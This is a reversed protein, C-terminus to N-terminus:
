VILLNNISSNSLCSDLDRHTTCARSSSVASSCTSKATASKSSRASPPTSGRLPTARSGASTSAISRAVSANGHAAYAARVRAIDDDVDLDRERLLRLLAFAAVPYERLLANVTSTTTTDIQPGAVVEVRIPVASRLQPRTWEADRYSYNIRTRVRRRSREVDFSATLRLLRTPTSRWPCIPNAPTAPVYVDHPYKDEISQFITRLGNAVGATNLPNLPLEFFPRWLEALPAIANRSRRWYHGGRRLCENRVLVNTAVDCFTYAPLELRLTEGLAPYDDVMIFKGVLIASLRELM